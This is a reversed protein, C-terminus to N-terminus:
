LYLDVCNPDVSRVDKRENWSDDVLLGDKVYDAKRQDPKVICVTKFLDLPIRYQDLVKYPNQNRTCLHFTRENYKYLLAMIQWNVKGKLILTDDLDIYIEGDPLKSKVSLSRSIEGDEEFAQIQKGLYNYIDMLPLNSGSARNLGVSGGIRAACEMLVYEDGKKKFQCFWAGNFKIEENIRHAYYNLISHEVARSVSSIGSRINERTRERVFILTGDQSFCDVTFEDGECCELILQGKYHADFGADTTIHHCGIGSHGQDPKLFVEYPRNEPTYQKPVRVVDKLAEYTRSKRACTFITEHPHYTPLGMSAFEELVLDNAPIVLDIQNDKQFVELWTHFMGDTVYPADSTYNDYMLEGHCPISSIGFLTIDKEFRLSRCIELGIETGCPFVAINMVVPLDM